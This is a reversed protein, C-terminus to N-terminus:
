RGAAASQAQGTIAAWADPQARLKKYLNEFLLTHGEADPHIDGPFAALQSPNAFRDFSDLLDVVPVHLDRIIDRISNMRIYKLDGAEVSPVLMIILGQGRRATEAALERLFGQLIV